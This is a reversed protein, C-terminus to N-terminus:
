NSTAASAPLAAPGRTQEPPPALRQWLAAAGALLLLPVIAFGVFGAYGVSSLLTPLMMVMGSTGLAATAEAASLAATARSRGVLNVIRAETLAALLQGAFGALVQAGMLFAVGQDAVAWGLVGLVGLLPWVVADNRVTRARPALRQIVSAALLNGAVGVAAVPALWGESYLDVVVGNKLTPLSAVFLSAAAGLLVSPAIRRYSALDMPEPLTAVQTRLAFRLMPLSSACVVTAGAATFLWVPAFITLLSAAGTGMVGGLGNVGNMWALSSSGNDDRKDAPAQAKSAQMMMTGCLSSVLQISAMAGIGAGSLIIGYQLLRFATLALAAGGLIGRGSVRRGVLGTVVAALMTGILGAAAFRAFGDLGAIRTAVIALLVSHLRGGFGDVLQATLM